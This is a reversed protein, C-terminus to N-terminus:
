LIMQMPRAAAVRRRLVGALVNVIQNVTVRVVGVLTM